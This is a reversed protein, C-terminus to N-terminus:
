DGPSYFPCSSSAPFTALVQVLLYLDQDWGGEVEGVMGRGEKVEM